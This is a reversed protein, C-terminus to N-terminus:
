GKANTFIPSSWAMEGDEQEVRAYVYPACLSAEIHAERGTGDSTALVGSPGVLRISRITGAGRARAVIRVADDTALESGMPLDGVRVDLHIRAGSTAYCRRARIAELIAERTCESAQVVTLGTRFPDRKRGVGHHWLLGHGDSCAIFGFRHGRRLVADVMHDRLDGRQGLPHEAFEYCGHCSCIEWVPQGIPDHADENAGTWGVHHPVSFGGLARVQAVVDRGETVVDRSVIPSGPRPMYVVKHGPGPYSRGTWEYALITAFAGPDNHHEAVAQLYAWEGPGVRKGLFSEHDSLACFDDGYLERARVFPEDATGCGDSHASHQHIDGFLNRQGSPLLFTEDHLTRARASEAVRRVDARVLSPAGGEAAEHREVVIGERERRATLLTGGELRVCAVRRGRCGWTGVGLALRESFGARTVNQRYFCHSGRGYITLAGDANVVLSPFEFGQEEGERDRDRERMPQAVAHVAGSADVYRLEIWKTIDPKLTDERVNHHFAVWHGDGQTAIAVAAATGFAEWVCLPAAGDRTLLVRSVGENRTVVVRAGECSAVDELAVDNAVAPPSVTRDLVSIGHFEQALEQPVGMVSADAAITREVLSEGLEHWEVTWLTATGDANARLVPTRLYRAETQALLTM